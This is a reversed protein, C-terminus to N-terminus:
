FKVLAAYEYDPMPSSAEPSVEDWTLRACRVGLFAVPERGGFVRFPPIYRQLNLLKLFQKSSPVGMRFLSFGYLRESADIKRGLASFAGVFNFNLWEGQPDFNATVHLPTKAADITSHAPVSAGWPPCTGNPTCTRQRMRFVERSTQRGMPAAPPALTTAEKFTMPAGTCSAADFPDLNEGAAPVPGPDCKWVGGENRVFVCAESRPALTLRFTGGPSSGNANTSSIAVSWLPQGDFIRASGSLETETGFMNRREVPRASSNPTLPAMILMPNAGGPVASVKVSLGDGEAVDVLLTQWEGPPVTVLRSEGFKLWTGNRSSILESEAATTENASDRGVDSGACAVACLASALSVGVLYGLTVRRRQHASTM